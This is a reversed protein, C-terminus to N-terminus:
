YYHGGRRSRCGGSAVCVGAEVMRERGALHCSLGGWHVPSQIFLLGDSFQEVRIAGSTANLVMQALDTGMTMQTAASLLGGAYLSLGGVLGVTGGTNTEFVKRVVGDSKDATYVGFYASGTLINDSGYALIFAGKSTDERTITAMNAAVVKVNHTLYTGSATKWLRYTPSTPVAADTGFKFIELGDTLAACPRSQLSAGQPIMGFQRDGTINNSLVVRTSANGTGFYDDIIAYPSLTSNPNLICDSVVAGLCTKLSVRGFLTGTAYSNPVDTVVIKSISVYAVYTLDVVTSSSPYVVALNARQPINITISDLVVRASMGAGSICTLSVASYTSSVTPLTFPTVEVNRVYLGTTKALGDNRVIYDGFLSLDLVALNAIGFATSDIKVFGKGFSNVHDSMKASGGSFVINQLLAGTLLVFDTPAGAGQEYVCNSFIIDQTARGISESIIQLSTAAPQLVHSENIIVNHCDRVTTKYVEGGAVYVNKCWYLQLAGFCNQLVVNAAGAIKFARDTAGSSESYLRTSSIYLGKIKANETPDTSDPSSYSVNSRIAVSGGQLTADCRDIVTNVVYNLTTYMGPSMPNARGILIEGGPGFKVNRVVQDKVDLANNGGVWVRAAGGVTATEVHLDVVGCGDKELAIDYSLTAASGDQMYFKVTGPSEARIIVNTKTLALTSVFKNSGAGNGYDGPKIIVEGGISPLAAIADNIADNVSASTSVNFEGVSSGSGLGVSVRAISTVREDLGVLSRTAPVTNSIPEGMIEAVKASLFGTDGFSGQSARLGDPALKDFTTYEGYGLDVKGGIGLLDVNSLVRFGKVAGEVSAPYTPNANGTTSSKVVYYRVSATSDSLGLTPTDLQLETASLKANVRHNGANAGDRLVLFDGALVGDATFNAYGDTFKRTALDVGNAGGSASVAEVSRVDPIINIEGGEVSPGIFAGIQASPYTITDKRHSKCILAKIVRRQASPVGPQRVHVLFYRNPESITVGIDFGEPFVQARYAFIRRRGSSDATGLPGRNVIHSRRLPVDTAMATFSGAAGTPSTYLDVKIGAVEAVGDAAEHVLWLEVDTMTFDSAVRLMPSAAHTGSFFVRRLDDTGGSAATFVVKYYTSNAPPLTASYPDIRYMFTTPASGVSEVYELNANVAMPVWATGSWSYVSVVAATVALMATFGFRLDTLDVNPLDASGSLRPHVLIQLRNSGSGISILPSLSEAEISSSVYASIPQTTDAPSFYGSRLSAVRINSFDQYPLGSSAQFWHVNEDEGFEFPLPNSVTDSPLDFHHPHGVALFEPDYRYAVLAVQTRTLGLDALLSFSVFTPDIVFKDTAVSASGTAIKLLQYRGSPIEAPVMGAAMTPGNIGVLVYDGPSFGVPVSGGAGAVPTILEFEDTTATKKVVALDPAVPLRIGSLPDDMFAGVISVNVTEKGALPIMGTMAPNLATNSSVVETNGYAEVRSALVGDANIAAAVDAYTSKTVTSKFKVEITDPVTTVTLSLAGAGNDTFKITIADTYAVLSRVQFAVESGPAANASYITYAAQAAESYQDTTGPSLIDFLTAPSDSVSLGAYARIKDSPGGPENIINSVSGLTFSKQAGKTVAKRSLALFRSFVDDLEKSVAYFGRNLTEAAVGEGRGFFRTDAPAGVPAQDTKPQGGLLIDATRRQAM